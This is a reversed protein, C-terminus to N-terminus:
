FAVGPSESTEPNFEWGKKKGDYQAKDCYYLYFDMLKLKKNTKNEFSKLIDFRRLAFPAV